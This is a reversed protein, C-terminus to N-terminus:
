KLTSIICVFLVLANDHVTVETLKEFM